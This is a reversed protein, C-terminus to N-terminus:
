AEDATRPSDRDREHSPTISARLAVVKSILPGYDKKASFSLSCLAILLALTALQAM